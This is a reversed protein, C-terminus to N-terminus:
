PNPTSLLAGPMGGEGGMGPYENVSSNFLSLGRM